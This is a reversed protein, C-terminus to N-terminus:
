RAAAKGETSARRGKPPTAQPHPRVRRGPKSAAPPQAAADEGAGGPPPRPRLPLATNARFSILQRRVETVAPPHRQRQPSPSDTRSTSYSRPSTSLSRPPPSAPTRPTGRQSIRPSGLHLPASPHAQSQMPQSRLDHQVNMIANGAKQAQLRHVASSTPKHASAPCPTPALPPPTPRKVPTVPRPIRSRPRGPQPPRPAPGFARRASSDDSDRTDEESGAPSLTQSARRRESGSSASSSGGSALRLPRGQRREMLLRALQQQRQALRRVPQERGSPSASQDSGTDEESVLVPIRSRRRAAQRKGGDAAALGDEQREEQLAEQREEQREEAPAERDEGVPALAPAPEPAPGEETALEPDPGHQDLGNLAPPEEAPSRPSAEDQASAEREVEQEESGNEAKGESGPAEEKEEEEEEEEEEEAEEEEEEEGERVDGTASPEEAVAFLEREALRAQQGSSSMVNLHSTEAIHVFTREVKTFPSSSAAAAAVVATLLLPRPESKLVSSLTGPESVDLQSGMPLPRESQPTVAPVTGLDADPPLLEGAALSKRMDGPSFLVLTKSGEELELDAEVTSARGKSDRQEDALLTSPAGEQSHETSKQSADSSSESKAQVGGDAARSRQPPVAAPEQPLLIGSFSLFDVRKGQLQPLGALADKEVAQERARFDPYSPCSPVLLPLGNQEFPKPLLVQRHPGDPESERRRPRAFPLSHCPSHTPSPAHGEEEAVTLMGRTKPRVVAEAGGGAGGGLRRREEQEEIPRLEEPEEDTTGSTTPEAGPLFDRLEAEKNIIVWEKSDFDEEEALPVSRFANSLAEHDVSASVEQRGSAQRDGPAVDVSLMQAPQSSYVQRSPSGLIDMRSRKDYAEARGEAASLRESEPSTARRYRLSRAQGGPSEPPASRVPSVPCAGRSPEEEAAVQTKSISIRLKNRNFDTDEWPEGEAPPQSADGHRSAAPPPPANEQDSLHEDQLVDDTNERQLDGPVPTVNVVGVMAATPRTNHQPPTSTSTSLLVDTGAKEWDFPENETIIREKMSNEFVSMLLQYDPKTYYDLGLVHDLFIHFESPMHKLLMRHDYREKIQGVQEKDKIKRWPLQGVAFEVLMYFLSWLDDHRGM